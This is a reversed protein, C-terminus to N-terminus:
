KARRKFIIALVTCIMIGIGLPITLLFATSAPASCGGYKGCWLLSAYNYAVVVCTTHSLLLTLIYFFISLKKMM